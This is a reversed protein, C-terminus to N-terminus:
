LLRTEYAYATAAARSNVGLKLFINSVHRDVTRESIFLEAAIARNTNGAAILRLVGLERPSLLGAPQPGPPASLSEVVALDHRAGLQEFVWCAADFEMNAADNDGLDRSALGILVRTRAAEYPAEIEQWITWAQRLVALAARRDGESLLLRGRVQAAVARLVPADLEAAITTLEEVGARASELDGAALMIEVLAPLLRSRTHRVRAQDVALRIATAAAETQGQALRLLALGPQPTRGYRSARRYAEEAEAFEGRLRHLEGCQYVAAGAAPQPVPSALRECALQAAAVADAWAGHLQLIEARRALCQGSYPVLDPQSACWRTLATTWAQARRLDFIEICGEIVSCYVDGVVLPSVERAEIAIMAQDLLRVGERIDGKRILLRGGSHSALALLDANKLREGIETAERVVACAGEIDGELFIEHAVAVLVYGQEVCDRGGDALVRRARAIWANGRDREGHHFLGLALWFACRAAREAEGRHFFGHHARAWIEESESAKGILFAATALRELDEPALPSEGDAGALHTCAETWAQQEYAKRGRELATTSTM